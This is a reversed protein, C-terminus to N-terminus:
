RLLGANEVFEGLAVATEASRTFASAQGQELASWCVLDVLSVAESALTPLMCLPSSEVERRLADVAAVWEDPAPQLDGLLSSFQGVIYQQTMPVDGLPVDLTARRPPDLLLRRDVGNPPRRDTTRATHFVGSVGSNGVFDFVGVVLVLTMLM